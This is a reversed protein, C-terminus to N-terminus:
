NHFYESVSLSFAFHYKLLVAISIFDERIEYLM